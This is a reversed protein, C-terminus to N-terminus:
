AGAFIVRGCSLLLPGVGSVNPYPEAFADLITLIAPAKDGSSGLAVKTMYAFVAHRISEANYDLQEVLKCVREWQPGQLLEQCLDRVDSIETVQRLLEAAQARTKCTACQALASLAQRPSGGSNESIYYLVDEVVPYKEAAKVRKLLGFLEEPEVPSLQYHACRTRIAEPIKLPETTCFAWYTHQPPEETIKLLSSFAAKSLNQAEDLIYMRNPNDGLVAYQLTEIIGRMDDVGTNDSGNVECINRDLCNFKKAIIRALTTKGLGASGTLLFCKANHTKVVEQLSEVVAKQGIIDKFLKPRYKTILSEM